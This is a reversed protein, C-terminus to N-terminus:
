GSAGGGGGGSAMTNLHCAGEWDGEISIHQKTKSPNKYSTASLISGGPCYACTNIMEQM